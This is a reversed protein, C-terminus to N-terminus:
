NHATPRFYKDNLYSMVTEAAVEHDLLDLSEEGIDDDGNAKVLNATLEGFRHHMNKLTESPYKVDLVFEYLSSQLSNDPSTFLSGTMKRVDRSHLTTFDSATMGQPIYKSEMTKVYDTLVEETARAIARKQSGAFGKSKATQRKELTDRATNKAFEFERLTIGVQPLERNAFYAETYNNLSDEDLSENAEALDATVDENLVTKDVLVVQRDHFNKRLAAFAYASLSLARLVKDTNAQLTDFSKSPVNLPTKKIAEIYALDELLNNRLSTYADCLRNERINRLCLNNIYFSRSTERSIINFYNTARAEDLHTAKMIRKICDMRTEEDLEVNEVKGDARSLAETADVTAFMPAVGTTQEFTRTIEKIGGFKNLIRDWDCSTYQVRTRSLKGNSDWGEAQLKKQAETNIRSTLKTVDTSVGDALVNFGRICEAGLNNAVSGMTNFCMAYTDDHKVRMYADSVLRCLYSDREQPTLGRPVEAGMVQSMVAEELLQYSPQQKAFNSQLSLEPLQSIDNSLLSAFMTSDITSIQM